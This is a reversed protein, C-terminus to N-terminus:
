GHIQSYGNGGPMNYTTVIFIIDCNQKDSKNSAESSPVVLKHRASLSLRSLRACSRDYQTSKCRM